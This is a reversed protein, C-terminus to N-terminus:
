SATMYFFSLYLWHGVSGFFGHLDHERFFEDHNQAYTTALTPRGLASQSGNRAIHLTTSNPEALVVGSTGSMLNGGTRSLVMMHSGIFFNDGPNFSTFPLGAIRVRKLRHAGTQLPLSAVQFEAQCYCIQGIKQYKTTVNNISGTNTDWYFNWTGTTPATSVHQTVNSAALRADAFTGSTIASTPINLNAGNFNYRNAEYTSM